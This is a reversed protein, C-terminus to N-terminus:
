REHTLVWTAIAPPAVLLTGGAVFWWWLPEVTVALYTWMITLLVVGVVAVVAAALFMPADVAPVPRVQPQPPAAVHRLVRVSDRPRSQTVQARAADLHQQQVDDPVHDPVHLHDNM